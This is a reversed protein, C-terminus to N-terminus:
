FTKRRWAGKSKPAPHNFYLALCFFATASATFTRYVGRTKIRAAGKCLSLFSYSGLMYAQTRQKQLEALGHRENTTPYTYVRTCYQSLGIQVASVIQLRGSHNFAHCHIRFCLCRVASFSPAPYTTLMRYTHNSM